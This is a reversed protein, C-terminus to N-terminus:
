AIDDTALARADDGAPPATPLQNYEFNLFHDRLFRREPKNSNFPTEVM